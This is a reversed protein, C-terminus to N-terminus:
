AKYTAMRAAAQKELRRLRTRASFSLPKVYSKVTRRLTNFPSNRDQVPSQAATPAEPIQADFLRLAADKDRRCLAQALPVFKPDCKIEPQLFEQSFWEPKLGDFAALSIDLWRGRWHGGEDALRAAVKRTDRFYNEQLYKALVKPLNQELLTHKAAAYHGLSHEVLTDMSQPNPKHEQRFYYCVSECQSFSKLRPLIEFNFCVDQGMKYHNHRLGAQRVADLRYIWRWLVKSKWYRPASAFTLGSAAPHYFYKRTNFTKHSFVAANACVADAGDKRALGYMDRAANADLFDDADLWAAFEGTAADQGATRAQGAGMNPQHIVRIRTDQTAYFDAIKGSDDKSGDNVVLIEIDPESQALCSELAVPLWPAMNYCPVIYSVKPM